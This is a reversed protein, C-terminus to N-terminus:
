FYTLGYDVKCIKHDGRYAKIQTKPVMTHKLDKTAIDPYHEPLSTRVNKCVVASEIDGHYWPAPFLWKVEESKTPESIKAKLHVTVARLEDLSWDLKMSPLTLLNIIIYSLM